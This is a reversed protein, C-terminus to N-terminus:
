IKYQFTQLYTEKIMYNMNLFINEWQIKDLFPFLDVWTAIAAPEKIINELLEFYTDNNSIKNLNILSGKIRLYVKNYMNM